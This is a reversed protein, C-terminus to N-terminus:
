SKFIVKEVARATGLYLTVGGELLEWWRPVTKLKDGFDLPVWLSEEPPHLGLLRVGEEVCWVTAARGLIPEVVGGGKCANLWNMWDHPRSGTSPPPKTNVYGDMGAGFSEALHWSKADRNKPALYKWLCIVYHPRSM